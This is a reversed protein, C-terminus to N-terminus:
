NSTNKILNTDASRTNHTTQKKDLLDSLYTHGIGNYAKWALVLIM